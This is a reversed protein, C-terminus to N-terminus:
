RRPNTPRQPGPGSTPGNPSCRATSASSKATPKPDTPGPPTAIASRGAFDRGRYCPGNDTLVREIVIGLDAFFAPARLWFGATTAGQENALVESYAIRTFADVASHVYAYGIAAKKRSYANPRDVRGHARWGGGRPIRGLKKIAEPGM